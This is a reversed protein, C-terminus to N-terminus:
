KLCKNQLLQKFSSFKYPQQCDKCTFHIGIPIFEIGNYFTIIDVPVLHPQKFGTILNLLHEADVLQDVHEFNNQSQPLM